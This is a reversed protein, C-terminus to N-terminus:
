GVIQRPFSLGTKPEQSCQAKSITDSTLCYNVQSELQACPPMLWPPCQSELAITTAPRHHFQLRRCYHPHPCPPLWPLGASPLHPSSKVSPNQAKPEWQIKQLCAVTAAPTPALLFAMHAGHPTPHLQLKQLSSM